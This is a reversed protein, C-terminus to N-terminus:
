AGRGGERRGKGESEGDKERKNEVLEQQASWKLRSLTNQTTQLVDKVYEM